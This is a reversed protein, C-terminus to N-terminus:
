SPLWIILYLLLLLSLPQISWYALKTTHVIPCGLVPKVSSFLLRVSPQTNHTLLVEEQQVKRLGKRLVERLVGHQVEPLRLAEEDIM